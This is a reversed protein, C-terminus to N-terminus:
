EQPAEQTNNIFGPPRLSLLTQGKKINIKRDQAIVTMTHDNGIIFLPLADPHKAQIENVAANSEMPTAQIFHGQAMRTNLEDLTINNSFLRNGQHRSAAQHKIANIVPNKAAKNLISYIHQRGFESVYRMCALTNIDQNNSLSFLKGIGVLDLHRDAHESIPNGYYTQLQLSKATTIDCWNSTALLCPINFENLAQAIAIAIPNAGIILIGQASPERVGLWDALFGATLSQFLVTLIIVTFTISVLGETHTMGISHFRITFLAAITAAIIGRPAIWSILMLERWHLGSRFASLTVAIPRIILQLALFLLFGPQLTSILSPLDIDAALIIFLGSILMISLSEKFGIIDDIPMNDMNGLCIGMLTVALLGSGEDVLNAIAYCTIVMILIAVNYLYDPLWHYVIMKGLCYGISLGMVTAFIVLKLFEIIVPWATHDTHYSAILSFTIIALIVGIPDILIGEWKLAKTIRANARVSRLMPTIVTPGAVTCIAAIILAIQWNLKLLCYTTIFSLVFTVIVGISLLNRIFIGLGKIHKFNLTLSGEFLIIAASINIIPIFLQGFVKSPALWGSIPGMLIGAFLL